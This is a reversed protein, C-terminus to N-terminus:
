SGNAFSKTCESKAWGILSQSGSYCLMMNLCNAEPVIYTRTYKGMQSIVSRQCLTVTTITGLKPVRNNSM